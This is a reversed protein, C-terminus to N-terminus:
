CIYKGKEINESLVQLNDSLVNKNEIIAAENKESVNEVYYCFEYVQVVCFMRQLNGVSASPM